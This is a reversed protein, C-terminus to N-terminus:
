SKIISRSNTVLKEASVVWNIEITELGQAVIPKEEGELHRFLIYEMAIGKSWLRWMVSIKAFSNKWKTSFGKLTSKLIGLFSIIEKASSDGSELFIKSSYESAFLM